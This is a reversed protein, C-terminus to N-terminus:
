SQKGRKRPIWRPVTKYYDEYAAGFKKRLAWEEYLM